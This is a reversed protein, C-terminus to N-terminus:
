IAEIDTVQSPIDSTAGNDGNWTGEAVREYDEGTVVVDVFGAERFKDAVTENDAWSELGGLVIKARYRQGREVTYEAM